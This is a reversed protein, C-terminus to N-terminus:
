PQFPLRFSETPILEYVYFCSFFSDPVGEKKLTYKVQVWDM